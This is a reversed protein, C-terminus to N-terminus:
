HYKTRLFISEEFLSETEYLSV